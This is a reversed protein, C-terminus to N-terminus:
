GSQGLFGFSIQKRAHLIMQMLHNDFKQPRLQRCSFNGFNVLGEIAATNRMLASFDRASVLEVLELALRELKHRFEPRRAYVSVKILALSVEQAKQDVFM